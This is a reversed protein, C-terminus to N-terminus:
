HMNCIKVVRHTYKYRSNSSYPLMYLQVHLIYAYTVFCAADKFRNEYSSGENDTDNLVTKQNRSEREEEVKIIENEEDIEYTQIHELGNM